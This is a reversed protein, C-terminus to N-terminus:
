ATELYKSNSAKKGDATTAFVYIALSDMDWDEPLTVAVPESESRTGLEYLESDELTTEVVLAYLQDNAYRRCGNGEAAHTFTLTRTEADASVSLSRPLKLRGQACLIEPYNVTVELDESVSVAEANTNASMFANHYTETTKRRPFGIQSAPEFLAELDLVKTWRTRQVMQAQTKSSNKGNKKRAINLGRMTYFTQNSISKRVNETIPTSEFIAFCTAAMPQLNNNKNFYFNIM